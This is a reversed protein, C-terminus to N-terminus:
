PKGDVPLVVAMEVAMEVMAMAVVEAQAVQGDVATEAAVAMVMIEGM